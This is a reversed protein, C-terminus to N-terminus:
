MRVDEKHFSKGEEVLDLMVFGLYLDENLLNLEYKLFRNIDM